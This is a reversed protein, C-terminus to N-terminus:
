GDLGDPGVQAGVFAGDGGEVAMVVDGPGAALGPVEEGVVGFAMVDM